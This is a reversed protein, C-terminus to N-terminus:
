ETLQKVDKEMGYNFHCKCVDIQWKTFIGMNNLTNRLLPQILEGSSVDLQIRDATRGFSWLQGCDTIVIKKLTGGDHLGYSEMVSVVEMGEKVQGFVVHKGDLRCSLLFVAWKGLRKVSLKWLVSSAWVDNRLNARPTCTRM